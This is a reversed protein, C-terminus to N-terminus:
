EGLTKVHPWEHQMFHASAKYTQCSCFAPSVVRDDTRDPDDRTVRLRKMAQGIQLRILVGWGVARGIFKPIKFASGGEGTLM